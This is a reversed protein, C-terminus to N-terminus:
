KVELRENLDALLPDLATLTPVVIRLDTLMERCRELLAAYADRLEWLCEHCTLSVRNHKCITLSTM